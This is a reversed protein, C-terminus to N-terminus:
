RSGVDSEEGSFLASDEERLTESDYSNDKKANIGFIDDGHHNDDLVGCTSSPAKVTHGKKEKQKSLPQEQAPVVVSSHM